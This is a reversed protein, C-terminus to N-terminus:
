STRRRQGVTDVYIRCIEYGEQKDQTARTTCEVSTTETRGLLGIKVGGASQNSKLWRVWDSTQFALFTGRSLKFM